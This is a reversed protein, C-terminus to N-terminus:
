APMRVLALLADTKVKAEQTLFWRNVKPIIHLWREIDAHAARVDMEGSAIMTEMRATLRAAAARFAQQVSPDLALYLTRLQDDALAFEIADRLASKQVRPPAVPQPAPAPPADSRHVPQAPARPRETIQAEVRELEQARASAPQEPTHIIDM